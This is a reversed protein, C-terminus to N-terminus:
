YLKTDSFNVGLPRETSLKVFLSLELRLFLAQCNGGNGGSDRNAMRTIEVGRCVLGNSIMEKIEGRDKKERDVVAFQIRGNDDIV